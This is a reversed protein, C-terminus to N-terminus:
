LAGAQNARTKRPKVGRHSHGFTFLNDPSPLRMGNHCAEQPKSSKAAPHVPFVRSDCHSFPVHKDAFVTDLADESGSAHTSDNRRSMEAEILTHRDLQQVGFRQAIALCHSTEFALRTGGRLDFTLVNRAHAINAREVIAARVHDHLVQLAFIECLPHVLPARDRALLCDFEDQLRAFRHGLRVREADNV